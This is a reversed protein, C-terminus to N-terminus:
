GRVGTRGGSWREPQGDQQGHQGAEQHEVDVRAVVAEVPTPTTAM